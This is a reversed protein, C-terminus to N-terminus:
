KEYRIFLSECSRPFTDEKDKCHYVKGTTKDEICVGDFGSFGIALGVSELYQEAAIIKAHLESDPNLYKM